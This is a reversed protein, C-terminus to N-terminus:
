FNKNKYSLYTIFLKRELESVTVFSENTFNKIIKALESVKIRYSSEIEIYNNDNPNKILEEVQKCIDNIFVLSIEKDKNFIKLKINNAVNHCFTAVVSNYNAKCNKGFVGPLRLINVKNKTERDLKLCIEEAEKKSTGYNNNELAQTSSFFILRKNQYNELICCIKNTLDINISKFEEINRPRNVGALHLVFDVEKIMYELEDINNSRNFQYIKYAKFQKFYDSLNSGIFGKAGTILIKKDKLM